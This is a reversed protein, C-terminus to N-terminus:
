AVRSQRPRSLPQNFLEELVTEPDLGLDAALDLAARVQEPHLVLIV